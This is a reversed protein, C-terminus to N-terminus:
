NQPQLHKDDISILDGNALEVEYMQKKNVEYPGYIISGNGKNAVIVQDGNKYVIKKPKKKMNNTMKKPAFMRADSFYGALDGDISKMLRAEDSAEDEDEEDDFSYYSHAKHDMTLDDDFEDDYRDYNM